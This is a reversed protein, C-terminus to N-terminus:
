ETTLTLADREDAAVGPDPSTPRHRYYIPRDHADASRARPARAEEEAGAGQRPARGAARAGPGDDAGRPRRRAAPEREDRRGDRLARFPGGQRRDAQRVGPGPRAGEAAAEGPRPWAAGEAPRAAGAGGRAHDHLAAGRRRALADGQGEQHVPRLPRERGPDGRRGAGDLIRPLSLLRLAEELTITELSM